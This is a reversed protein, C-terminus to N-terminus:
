RPSRPRFGDNRCPIRLQGNVVASQLWMRVMASSRCIVSSRNDWGVCFIEDDSFKHLTGVAVNVLHSLDVTLARSFGGVAAAFRSRALPVRISGFGLRCMVAVKPKCDGAGVGDQALSQDVLCNHRERVHVRLHCFPTQSIVRPGSLM